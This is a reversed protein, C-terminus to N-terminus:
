RAPGEVSRLGLTKRREHLEKVLERLEDSQAGRITAANLEDVEYAPWASCRAGLRCPKTMEGREIAAYIATRSRGMKKQVAHLRLLDLNNTHM